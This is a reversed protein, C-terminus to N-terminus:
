SFISTWNLPKGRALNLISESSVYKCMELTLPESRPGWLSSKTFIWKLTEGHCIIQIHGEVLQSSLPIYLVNTNAKETQKDRIHKLPKAVPTISFIKKLWLIATTNGRYYSYNSKLCAHLRTITLKLSQSHLFRQGLTACLRKEHIRLCKNWLLCFRWPKSCVGLWIAM